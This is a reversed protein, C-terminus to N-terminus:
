LPQQQQREERNRACQNAQDACAHYGICTELCGLGADHEICLGSL